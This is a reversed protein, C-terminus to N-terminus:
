RYWDNHETGGGGGGCYEGWHDPGLGCTDIDWIWNYFTTWAWSFM